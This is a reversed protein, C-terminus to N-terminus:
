GTGKELRPALGSLDYGAAKAISLIDQASREGVSALAWLMTTRTGTRCFGLIPGPLDTLAARFAAVDDAGITPATVPLHRFGLGLSQAEAAVDAARVQGPEEEDPRNSIVSRYGLALAAKLDALAIQPSAGLTTDLPRIDM